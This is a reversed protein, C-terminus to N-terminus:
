ADGRRSFILTNGSKNKTAGYIYINTAKMKETLIELVDNSIGSNMTSIEGYHNKQRSIFIKPGTVDLEYPPDMIVLDISKDPLSELGEVCDMNYITDIRSVNPIVTSKVSLSTKFPNMYVEPNSCKDCYVDGKVHFPAFSMSPYTYGSGLTWGKKELEGIAVAHPHEDCENPNVQVTETAGCDACKFDMTFTKPIDSLQGGWRRLPM